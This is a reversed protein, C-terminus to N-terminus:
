KYYKLPINRAKLDEIAQKRLEEMIKDDDEKKNLIDQSEKEVDSVMQTNVIFKGNNLKYFMLPYKFDYNDWGGPMVVLEKGQPIVTDNKESATMVEKTNKDIIVYLEAFCPQALLLIALVLALRKM